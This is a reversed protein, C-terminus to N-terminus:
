IYVMPESSIHFEISQNTLATGTLDWNIMRTKLVVVFVTTTTTKLAILTPIHVM